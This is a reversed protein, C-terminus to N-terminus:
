TLSLGLFISHMQYKSSRGRCFQQKLWRVDYLKLEMLQDLLFCTDDDQWIILISHTIAIAYKYSWFLEYQSICRFSATYYKNAKTKINALTNTRPFETHRPLFVPLQKDANVCRGLLRLVRYSGGFTRVSNSSIGSVDSCGGAEGDSDNVISCSGAEDDSDIVISCGGDYLENVPIQWFINVHCNQGRRLVTQKEDIARDRDM